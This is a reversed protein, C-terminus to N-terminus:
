ITVIIQHTNKKNAEIALIDFSMLNQMILLILFEDAM